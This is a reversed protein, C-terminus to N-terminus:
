GASVGGGGGGGGVGGSFGGGHGSSYHAASLSAQTIAGAARDISSIARSISNIDPQSASLALYGGLWAPKVAREDTLIQPIMKALKKAQGFLIGFVLYQDWLKYAEAPIEKFDSFDKERASLFSVLLAVSLFISLAFVCSGKNLRKQKM